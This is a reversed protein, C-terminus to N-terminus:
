TSQGEVKLRVTLNRQLRLIIVQINKAQQEVREDEIEEEMLENGKGIDKRYAERIRQRKEKLQRLSKRTPEAM